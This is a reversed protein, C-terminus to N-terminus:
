RRRQLVRRRVALGGAVGALGAVALALSLRGWGSGGGQPGDGTGPMTIVGAPGFTLDLHQVDSVGDWAHWVGTQSAVAVVNGQADLLKFTIVSGEVGCGPQQEDSFVCAAYTHESGISDSIGYGCIRRNIFPVVSQGPAIPVSSLGSFPAFPPGAFFMLIVHSGAHWVGTTRTPRGGVSFEVTAGESGCGPRVDKSPVELWFLTGTGDPPLYSFANSVCVTGNISASLTEGVCPHADLWCPGEFVSLQDPSPTAAPAPATSPSITPAPSPRRAGVGGASTGFAGVVLGVLLAARYLGKM